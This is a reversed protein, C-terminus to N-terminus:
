FRSFSSHRGVFSGVCDKWHLVENSWFSIWCAKADTNTLKGYGHGSFFLKFSSLKNQSMIESTETWPQSAGNSELRQCPLFVMASPCPLSFSSVWQCGPLLALSSANLSFIFEEFARWRVM